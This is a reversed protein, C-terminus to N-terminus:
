PQVLLHQGELVCDTVNGAVDIVELHIFPDWDPNRRKGIIVVPETTGVDFSIPELDVNHFEGIINISVLGSGTDQVTIQVLHDDFATLGCTPPTTDIVNITVTDSDTGGKGDDVTLTITQSGLSPLTVTAGGGTVTGGGESFPGTWTYTLADGDPDSSGSGDLTAVAGGPGLEGTQDPGADANPPLNDVFPGIEKYQEFTIEPFVEMSTIGPLQPSVGSVGIAGGKFRLRPWENVTTGMTLAM